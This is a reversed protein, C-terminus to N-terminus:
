EGIGLLRQILSVGSNGYREQIAEEISEESDATGLFRDEFAILDFGTLNNEWYQSLDVGFVARFEKSYSKLIQLNRWFTARLDNEPYPNKQTNQTM